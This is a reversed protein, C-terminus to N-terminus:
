LTLAVRKRQSEPTVFAIGAFATTVHSKRACYLLVISSSQALNKGAISPAAAEIPAVTSTKSEKRIGAASNFSSAVARNASEIDEIRPSLM